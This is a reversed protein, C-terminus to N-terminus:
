TYPDTMAEQISQRKNHFKEAEDPRGCRALLDGLHSYSEALAPRLDSVHEESALIEMSAVVKEYYALAEEPSEQEESIESLAIFSLALTLHLDPRGGRQILYQTHAAGKKYYHAAQSLCGLDRSMEGLRNYRQALNVRPEEHDTQLILIEDIEAGKSYYDVAVEVNGRAECVIGLCEYTTSLSGYVDISEEEAALAELIAVSKRYHAEAGRLKGCARDVDGLKNYGVAFAERAGLSNPTKSLIDANKLVKRYYRRARHWRRKDCAINGLHEYCMSLALRIAIDDKRPSSQVVRLGKGYYKEAKQPEGCLIAVDGLKNYAIAEDFLLYVDSVRKSIEAVENLLKEYVAKVKELAGREYWYDGLDWLARLYRSADEKDGTEKYISHGRAVLREQWAIATDFNRAVGEGTRYMGVLKEMAAALGANASDTILSLARAHNIEVDIGSLYALGIFFNHKPDNNNERKAVTALVDILAKKLAPADHADTCDPINHYRSKLEGRDTAVMEAPLITKHAKKAEPYEVTMVYNTENVLNPTVALAFLESKQLAAAISDNFNEGPVLFEDYWIAIDRCFENEHILHMLEQAHARDKKRYSLFIYADFAARVQEALEDGVLVSSLFKELKEDYSIATVDRQHKDLFQIDGCKRNFLNELGAEQMLPLVPIHHEQAYAFEVTLARNDSTLLHTTVPMVFLNMQALDAYFSEAEWDADPETDYYIACNQKELIEKVIPEFFLEYDKPHACFWVRRKGQPSSNGRTRVDLKAM